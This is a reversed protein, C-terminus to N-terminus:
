TTRASSALIPLRSSDAHRGVLVHLPRCPAVSTDSDSFSGGAAASASATGASASPPAAHPLPPAIFVEAWSWCLASCCQRAPRRRQLWDICPASLPSEIMKELWPDSSLTRRVPECVEAESAVYSSVMTRQVRVTRLYRGDEIHERPRVCLTTRALRAALPRDPRPRSAEGPSPKVREVRAPAPSRSEAPCAYTVVATRARCWTTM